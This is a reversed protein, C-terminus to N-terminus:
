PKKQFFDQCLQQSLMNGAIKHGIQNWHGGCNAAPTFGHLCEQNQKAYNAFTETFDVITFGAKDALAKIRKNPYYLDTIQHQQQYAIRLNEEKHVQEPTGILGVVLKAGKQKVEDNMLSLLNETISWAEQWNADKPEKFNQASVQQFHLELTRLKNDLEAKKVLQLIRSNNVLWAPFRDVMTVTYNDADSLRRSRFSNDLELKGNKRVFFPRLINNELSRSNNIVDNGIFFALVVLEPNYDWVKKRLTLLEQATGYGDVGFNIAEIKTGKLSPCETGLQREMVAWFTQDAPVHVAATFSDGLVAVRLTKPPKPKTHERDRLGDSNIKVYSAGEKSWWGAAGPRNVWGLDPDATTFFSPTFNSQKPNPLKKAGEIGAVRLGIECIAIGTVVGGLILLLTEQWGKLKAMARFCRIFSRRM